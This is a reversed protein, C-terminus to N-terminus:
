LTKVFTYPTMNGDASWVFLKIKKTNPATLNFVYEGAFKKPQVTVTQSKTSILRGDESYCAIHIIADQESDTTNYAYTTVNFNDNSMNDVSYVTVGVQNHGIDMSEVLTRFKFTDSIEVTGTSCKANAETSVRWYYVTDSELSAEVNYSLDYTEHAPEVLKKFEPDTAIEVTYKQAGTVADWKLVLDSASISVEITNIPTVAQTKANKAYYDESVLGMKEFPITEFGPIKERIKDYATEDSFTKGSFPNEAATYSANNQYVTRIYGAKYSSPEPVNNEQGAVNDEAVNIMVNNEIYNDRASALYQNLNVDVTKAVKEGTPIFDYYTFKYGSSIASTTADRNVNYENIREYMLEAWSKLLPYREAYPGEITAGTGGYGAEPKLKNTMFGYELSYKKWEDYGDIAHTYYNTTLRIAGGESYNMFINNYVTNESGTHLHMWGGDAIINGYAYNESAMDDFYIARPGGKTVDHIYNYRIHNGRRFMDVGNVYIAGSDLKERPSAAIENYEVVSEIGSVSIGQGINNSLFNHSAIEGVGAVTIGSTNYFINNQAFLRDPILNQRDQETNGNLLVGKEDLNKFTSNIVGSYKGSFYLGNNANEFSCNQAVVGNAGSIALLRGRASEFHIGNIIINECSSINWVYSTSSAYVIESDSFGDAPYIYLKGTKKDMFWEGPTDLEELVNYYYFTNEENYSCGYSIGTKTRISRSEPHFETVNLHNKTWETYFSGYVWIDGTDVWSFPRIDEVCFQIGTDTSVVSSAAENLETARKSYPRTSPNSISGADIVGREGDEGEYKRMSTMESNPWRAIDYKRGNVYLAPASDTTINGYDTIGYEEKLDVVRINSVVDPNLRQLVEQDKVKGFKDSDIATGGVVKVEENNYNSIIFPTDQDFYKKYLDVRDTMPYTGERLYLVMDSQPPNNKLAEAITKYPKDISGDATSDDGNNVDVYVKTFGDIKAPQIVPMESPLENEIKDKFLEKVTTGAAAKFSTPLGKLAELQNSELLVDSTTDIQRTLHVNNATFYLTYVDPDGSHKFSYEFNGSDDVDIEGYSSFVPNENTHNPIDNRTKGPNLLYYTIWNRSNLNVAIRGSLTITKTATSYEVVLRVNSADSAMCPLSFCCVLMVMTLLTAIIKKM